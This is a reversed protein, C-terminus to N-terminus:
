TRESAARASTRSIGAVEVADRHRNRMRADFYDFLVFVGKRKLTRMRFCM